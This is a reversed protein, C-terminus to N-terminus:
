RLVGCNHCSGDSMWHHPVVSTTWQFRCSNCIFHYQFCHRDSALTYLYSCSWGTQGCYTCAIDSLSTASADSAPPGDLPQGNTTYWDIHFCDATHTHQQNCSALVGYGAAASAPFLLLSALLLAAFLRICSKM